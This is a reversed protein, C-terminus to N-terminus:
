SDAILRSVRQAQAQAARVADLVAAALRQEGVARANALDLEVALVHGHANVRVEGCGGQIPKRVGNANLKRQQGDRQEARALLQEIEENLKTHDDWTSETM